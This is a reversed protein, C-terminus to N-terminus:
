LDKKLLYNPVSTVCEWNKGVVHEGSCLAIAGRKLRVMCEERKRRCVFVCVDRWRMWGQLHRRPIVAEPLLFQLFCHSLTGLFATKRLRIEPFSFSPSVPFSLSNNYPTDNQRTFDRPPADRSGYVRPTPRLWMVPQWLLRLCCLIHLKNGQLQADAETLLPHTQSSNSRNNETM